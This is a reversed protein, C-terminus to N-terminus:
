ASAGGTTGAPAGAQIGAEVHRRRGSLSWLAVGAFMALTHIVLAPTLMGLSTYGPTHSAVAGM